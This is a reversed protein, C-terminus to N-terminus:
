RTNLPLFQLHLVDQCLRMTERLGAGYIPVATLLQDCTNARFKAFSSFKLNSRWRFGIFYYKETMFYFHKTFRATKETTANINKFEM